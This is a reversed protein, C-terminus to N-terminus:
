GKHYLFARKEDNFCWITGDRQDVISEMVIDDNDDYYVYNKSKEAVAIAIDRKLGERMERPLPAPRDIVPTDEMHARIEDACQLIMHLAKCETPNISKRKHIASELNKVACLAQETITGNAEDAMFARIENHTYTYM